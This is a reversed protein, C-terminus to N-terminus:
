RHSGRLRRQDIWACGIAVLALVPAFWAEPARLAWLTAGGLACSAIPVIFLGRPLPQALLLFGLTAIATPEPMLGFVEAQSWPRGIAMGILPYAILGSLVIVIAVPDTPLVQHRFAVGGRVVGVWLLAAGQAAYVGAVYLAAWNITAFRSYAFGWALWLWAAALMAFLARDRLISHERALWLLAGAAIALAVVQLPWVEANYSGILRYYTRASFLLFSAPRYSWWESV